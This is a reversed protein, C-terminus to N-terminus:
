EPGGPEDLGPWEKPSRPGEPGHSSEAGHGVVEVIGQGAGVGAHGARFGDAVPQKAGGVDALGKGISVIGGGIDGDAIRTGGDVFDVSGEFIETGRELRHAIKEAQELRRVEKLKAAHKFSAGGKSAKLIARAQGQTAKTALKLGKAYHLAGLTAFAAVDIALNLWMEGTIEHGAAATGAIEAVSVAVLLGAVILPALTGGSGILAAIMLVVTAIELVIRVVEVIPDLTQSWFKDWGNNYLVGDANWILDAALAVASEFGEANGDFQRELTRLENELHELRANLSRVEPHDGYTYSWAITAKELDSEQSRLRDITDSRQREVSEIEGQTSRGRSQLNRFLSQYDSLEPAFRRLASAVDDNAVSFRRLFEPVEDMQERVIDASNGSWMEEGSHHFETALPRARSMAEHVDAFVQACARVDGADGFALSPQDHWAAM